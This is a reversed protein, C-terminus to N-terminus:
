DMRKHNKNELLLRCVLHRLSQLESTHEESRLSGGVGWFTLPADPLPALPNEEAPLLTLDPCAEESGEARRARLGELIQEQTRGRLRFLM